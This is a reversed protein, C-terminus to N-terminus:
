RSASGACGGIGPCSGAFRADGAGFVGGDAAVVLYGRGDTSPAMGVIPEALRRVPGPTGAPAIGLGPVSGYFGVYRSPNVMARWSGTARETPPRRSGSWQDNSFWTAQQDTSSPPASPSSAETAAWWGTGTPPPRLSPRPGHSHDDIDFCPPRCRRLLPGRHHRPGVPTDRRRVHVRGVSSCRRRAFFRRVARPLSVTGTPTGVLSDVKASFTVSRGRM